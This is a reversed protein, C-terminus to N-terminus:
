AAVVLIGIREFDDISARLAIDMEACFKPIDEVDAESREEDRLRAKYNGATYTGIRSSEPSMDYAVAAAGVLFGRYSFSLDSKAAHRAREVLIPVMGIVTANIDHSAFDYGGMDTGGLSPVLFSTDFLEEESTSM